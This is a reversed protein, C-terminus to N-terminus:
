RDRWAILLDAQEQMAEGIQRAHEPPFGYQGGLKEFRLTVTVHRVDIAISVHEKKVHKFRWTLHRAVIVGAIFWCAATFWPIM